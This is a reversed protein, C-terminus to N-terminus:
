RRARSVRPRPASRRRGDRRRRLDLPAEAPMTARVRSIPAVERAPGTSTEGVACKWIPPTMMSVRSGCACRVPQEDGALVCAARVARVPEASVADGLRGDEACAGATAAAAIPLGLPM